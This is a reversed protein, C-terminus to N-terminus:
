TLVTRRHRAGSDFDPDFSMKNAIQKARKSSPLSFSMPEGSGDGVAYQDLASAGSGSLVM